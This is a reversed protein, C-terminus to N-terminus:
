SAPVCVLKLKDKDKKGATTISKITLSGKKIKTGKVKLPVTLDISGTCTLASLPPSFSSGAAGPIGTLASAVAGATNADPNGALTFSTVPAATCKGGYVSAAADNFCLQTRIVCGATTSSDCTPDNDTCTVVPTTATAGAVRWEAFCDTKAPGGGRLAPGTTTSTTGGGGSTTTSTTSGGGPPATSTTTFGACGGLTGVSGANNTPSPTALAFNNDFASGGSRALSQSGNNPISSVAAGAGPGLPGTYPGYAVCDVYNGPISPDWSGPAPPSMGPAGWCIMGCDRFIGPDDDSMVVDPVIGSAAQFSASGIVWRAGTMGNTIDNPVLRLVNAVSGDCSFATLRTDAVVTQGSSLLRMEVFQVTSNSGCGSMFEDIVAFHFVAHAPMSALLVLTMAVVTRLGRGRM